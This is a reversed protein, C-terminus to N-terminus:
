ELVKMTNLAKRLMKATDVDMRLLGIVDERQLLEIDMQFAGREHTTSVGTVEKPIVLAEGSQGGDPWSFVQIM